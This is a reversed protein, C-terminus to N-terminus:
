LHTHYTLVGQAHGGMQTKVADLIFHKRNVCCGDQMPESQCDFLMEILGEQTV